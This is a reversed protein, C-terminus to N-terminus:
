QQAAAAAPASAARPPTLGEAPSDDAKPADAASLAATPPAVLVRRAADLPALLRNALLSNQSDPELAAVVLNALPQSLPVYWSGAPASLEAAQLDVQLLLMTRQGDAVSGRVDPRPLERRSREVWAETALRAPAQLRQVQVGLARLTRLAGDQGPALWYGCPRARVRLERLQLASEWAVDVPKDAGTEPDLFLMQRRAPTGEAQVVVRGVCAQAAVEADARAQLAQLDDAHRAAQRLVSHLAVLHSQMRRALHLRGIGVGRSELLLSVAHRLGQVNRGTDPQVGGMLLRLDGAPTPNTYYWEASLGEAALAALLPQRFWLESARGLAEPLHPTMAYQLLMDHRQVAQFKELYRGVVTHEHLDVVVVPRQLAVLAAVAQAEPTRLLLHDRNIDIGGASVRQQWQAGDPNARPLVIVDLRALVPALEGRALQGALVLLAEAGAPEDGHQQGVLLVRPRGAPAGAASFHLATLAVGAQSRGADLRQVRVGPAAAAALRALSDALVPNPTFGEAGAALVAAAPPQAPDPFRAAVAASYPLPPEAPQALASRALLALLTLLTLLALAAARALQRGHRCASKQAPQAQTLPSALPM